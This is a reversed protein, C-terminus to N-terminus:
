VTLPSHRQLSVLLLMEPPCKLAGTMAVSAGKRFKHAVPL